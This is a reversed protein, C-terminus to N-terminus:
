RAQTPDFADVVQVDFMRAGSIPEVFAVPLRGLRAWENVTKVTVGKREAVERTLLLVLPRSDAKHRTM